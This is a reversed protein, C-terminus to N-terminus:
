LSGFWTHSKLCQSAYVPSQSMYAAKDKTESSAKSTYELQQSETFTQTEAILRELEM